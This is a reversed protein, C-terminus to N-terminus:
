RGWFYSSNDSNSNPSRATLNRTLGERESPLSNDAAPSALEVSRPDGGQASDGGATNSNGGTNSTNRKSSKGCCWHLVGIVAILIGLVAISGFFLENAGNTNWNEFIWIINKIGQASGM